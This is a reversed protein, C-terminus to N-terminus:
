LRKCINPIGLRRWFFVAPSQSANELEPIAPRDQVTVETVQM